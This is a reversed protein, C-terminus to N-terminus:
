LAPVQDDIAFTDSQVHAKFKVYVMILLNYCPRWVLICVHLPNTLRKMPYKRRQLFVYTADFHM